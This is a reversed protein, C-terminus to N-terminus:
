GSSTPSRRSTRSWWCWDAPSRCSRVTPRRDLDDGPGRRQELGDDPRGRPGARDVAVRRHAPGGDRRRAGRLPGVDGVLARRRGGRPGRRRRDPRRRAALAGALRRAGAGAAPRRGPRCRQGRRHGPRGGAHRVGAAPRARLALGPRSRRRGPGSRRGTPRDRAHRAARRRRRARGRGAGDRGRRPPPRRRRRGRRRASPAAGGAGDAVDPLGRVPRVGRRARGLRARRRGVEPRRRRGADRRGPDGDPSRACRRPRPSRRCCRM